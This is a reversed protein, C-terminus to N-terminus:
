RGGAGDAACLQAPRRQVGAAVGGPPAASCAPPCTSPLPTESGAALSAPSALPAAARAAPGVLRVCHVGERWGRRQRGQLHVLRLTFLALAHAGSELMERGRANRVTLYQQHSTMDTGQYPVGM